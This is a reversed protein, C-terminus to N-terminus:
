TLFGEFEGLKALTKFAIQCLNLISQASKISKRRQSLLYPFHQEKGWGLGVAKQTRISDEIGIVNQTKGRELYM